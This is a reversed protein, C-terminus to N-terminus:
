NIDVLAPVKYTKSNYRLLLDNELIDLIRVGNFTKDGISYAKGNLMVFREKEKDSYVHASYRLRPLQSLDNDLSDKKAANPDASTPATNVGQNKAAKKKFSKQVSEQPRKKVVAKNRSIPKEEIVLGADGGVINLEGTENKIRKNDATIPSSQEAKKNAAGQATAEFDYKYIVMLLMIILVICLMILLVKLGASNVGDRQKKGAAYHHSNLDPIKGSEESDKKKLADLIYSM